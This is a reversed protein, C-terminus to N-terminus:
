MQAEPKGAGVTQGDCSLFFNRARDSFCVQPSIEVEKSLTSVNTIDEPTFDGHPTRPDGIWVAYTVKDYGHEAFRALM